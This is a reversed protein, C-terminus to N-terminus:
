KTLLEKLLAARNSTISDVGVDIMRQAHGPQDVTWVALTKGAAHIKEVFEKTILPEYAYLDLGDANLEDITALLSEATATADTITALLLAKYQPMDKKVQAIMNKDFSIFVIQEAPINAEQMIPIIATALAIDGPKLEIYFERNPKLLKLVEKFLPIRENPYVKQYAGSVNVEQLQSFTSQEIELIKDGMRGTNNDHAIVVVNDKTLHIDCEMGDVDRALSLNFAAITNEPADISEGRHSIWKCSM